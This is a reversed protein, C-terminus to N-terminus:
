FIISMYPPFPIQESKNKSNVKQLILEVTSLQLDFASSQGHVTSSPPRSVAPPQGPAPSHLRLVPSLRSSPRHNQASPRTMISPNRNRLVFPVLPDSLAHRFQEEITIQIKTKELFLEVLSSHFNPLTSPHFKPAWSWHATSHAHHHGERRQCLHSQHKSPKLVFTQSEPNM